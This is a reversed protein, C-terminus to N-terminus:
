IDSCGQDELYRIFISRGLLAYAQEPSLNNPTSNFLLRLRVQNMAELLRQDARHDRKIRQGVATSWFAGTELNLRRFDSLENRIAERATEITLLQQLNKLLRDEDDNLDGVVKAPEAYGNYIRIEQPFIVYLLPIKSQSWVQRYLEILTDPNTDSLRSFYAIPVDQIFYINEIHPIPRNNPWLDFSKLGSAETYDLEELLIHKLDIDNM